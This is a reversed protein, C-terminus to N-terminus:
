TQLIVDFTAGRDTPVLVLRGGHGEEVIRRALSLGIGWGADKTSFGPEFIRARLERPIGPGDDTVRVRARAPDLREVAIEVTGGRGALADVANKTLAELAWELLVPDGEALVPEEDCRASISVRRALTPVRAQFYATVRAALDCLDVPERKPPRGIREFRHAVRELRELDTQMHRIATAATPDDAREGLLEVWGSLSSMPTALQHATERAM